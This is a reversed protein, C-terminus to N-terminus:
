LSLCLTPFPRVPGQRAISVASLRRVVTEQDSLEWMCQLLPAVSATEYVVESALLCDVPTEWADVSEGWKLKRVEVEPANQEINHRLDCLNEEGEDHCDGDTAIVKDFCGLRCGLKLAGRHSTVSRSAVISPVATSGAGIEVVRGKLRGSLAESCLARALMVSAGWLFAGVVCGSEVEWDRRPLAPVPAAGKAM